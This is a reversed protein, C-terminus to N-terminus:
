RKDAVEEGKTHSAQHSRLTRERAFIKGCTPCSYESGPAKHSHPAHKEQKHARLAEVSPFTCDCGPKPCPIQLEFSSSEESRGKAEEEQKIQVACKSRTSVRRKGQPKLGCNQDSAFMEQHQLLKEETQFSSGCKCCQFTNIDEAIEPHDHHVAARHTRLRFGTPFLAGCDRCLFRRETCNFRKHRSLESFTCFKKKCDTCLFPTKERNHTVQHQSLEESSHFYKSCKYCTFLTNTRQLHQTYQDRHHKRDHREKAKPDSFTIYCQFCQLSEPFRPQIPAVVSEPKREASSPPKLEDGVIVQEIKGMEMSINGSVASRCVANAADVSM